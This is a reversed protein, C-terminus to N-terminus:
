LSFRANIKLLIDEYDRGYDLLKQIESFITKYIEEFEQEKLRDGGIAFIGKGPSSGVYGEAELERYARQITNPNIALKSALERVSPLKENEEIVGSLILRKYNEMVQYYLPQGSRYDLSILM